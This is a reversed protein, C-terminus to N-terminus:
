SSASRSSNRLGLERLQKKGLQRKSKSIIKTESNMRFLSGRLFVPTKVEVEVFEHLYRIRRGRPARIADDDDDLTKQAGMTLEIQSSLGVYDKDMTFAM